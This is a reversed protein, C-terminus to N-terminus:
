EYVGISKAKANEVALSFDRFKWKSDKRSVLVFRYEPFKVAAWKLKVIGDQWREAVGKGKVEHFEVQRGPLAVRFDPSYTCIDPSLELKVSEYEWSKIEGALRRLELYDSYLQETKSRERTKTKKAAAVPKGMVKLMGSLFDADRQRGEKIALDYNHLLLDVNM